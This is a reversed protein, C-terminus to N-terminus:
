LHECLAIGFRFFGKGTRKKQFGREDLALGFNMMSMPRIGESEAWQKYREYLDKM